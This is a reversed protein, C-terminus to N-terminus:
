LGAPFKAQQGLRPYKALVRSYRRQQYPTLTSATILGSVHAVFALDRVKMRLGAVRENEAVLERRRIEDIASVLTRASLRVDRYKCKELIRGKRSKQAVTTIRYYMVGSKMRRIGPAIFRGFDRRRKVRRVANPRSHPSGRRTDRELEGNSEHVVRACVDRPLLKNMRDRCSFAPGYAVERYPDNVTMVRDAPGLSGTFKWWFWILAAHVAKRRSSAQIERSTIIKGRKSIVAEYGRLPQPIIAM